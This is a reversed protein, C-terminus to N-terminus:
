NKIVFKTPTKFITYYIQMTPLITSYFFNVFFILDNGGINILEMSLPYSIENKFYILFFNKVSFQYM